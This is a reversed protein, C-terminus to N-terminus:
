GRSTAGSLVRSGIRAGVTAWFRLRNGTSKQIDPQERLTGLYQLMQRQTSDQPASVKIWRSELTRPEAMSVHVDRLAASVLGPELLEIPAAEETRQRAQREAFGRDFQSRIITGLYGKGRVVAIDRSKVPETAYMNIQRPRDSDVMSASAAFPTNGGYLGAGAVGKRWGQDQREDATALELDGPGNETAHFVVLRREGVGEPLYLYRDTEELRFDYRSVQGTLVVQGLLKNVTQQELFAERSEEM